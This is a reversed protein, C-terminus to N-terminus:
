AVGQEALVHTLIDRAFPDTHTDRLRKVRDVEGSVLCVAQAARYRVWWEPDSLMAILSLEDRPAGLRGLTKVACVRVEWRPHHLFPQVAGMDNADTFVRLCATISEISEVERILHNLLPVTAEGHALGLYRILRHAHEQPTRLVAKVLPESIVDAGAEQLMLAVTSPPWDDREAVIPLLLTTASQRDIRVMARAAALSLALDQTSVLQVLEGWLVRDALRGLTTIALLRDRTDRRSFMRRAARDLGIRLALDLLPTRVSGKIADHVRNWLSLLTRVERRRLRPLSNPVKDLGCMLLPLWVRELRRQRRIRIGAVLRVVFLQLAILAVLAFLVVGSWVVFALAVDSGIGWVSV